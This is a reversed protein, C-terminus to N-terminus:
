LCLFCLFCFMLAHNIVDQKKILKQGKCENINKRQGKSYV